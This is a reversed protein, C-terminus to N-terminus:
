KVGTKGHEERPKAINVKLEHESLSYANFMSIAKDAEAQSSMTVFAFGKSEESGREKVVEASTVSGAQTFLTSLDNQTTSKSLNGVYLRVEMKLAVKEPMAPISFGGARLLAPPSSVVCFWNDLKL